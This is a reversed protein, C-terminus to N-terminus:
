SLWLSVVPNEYGQQLAMVDLLLTKVDDVYPLPAFKEYERMDCIKMYNKCSDCVCVQADKVADATFYKLKEQRQELCYPCQIRPARYVALCVSCAHMRKGKKGKLYSVNPTGGCYPCHGHGWAESEHDVDVQTRSHVFFPMLAFSALFYCMFAFETSKEAQEQYFAEDEAVYAKLMQVAFKKHAAVHKAVLAMNQVFDKQQLEPSFEMKLLSQLRDEAKDWKGYPYLEERQLLSKGAAHQLTDHTYAIKKRLTLEPLSYINELFAVVEQPLDKNASLRKIAALANTNTSKGMPLSMPLHSYHAM